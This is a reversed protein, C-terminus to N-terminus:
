RVTTSLETLDITVGTSRSSRSSRGAEEKVMVACPSALRRAAWFLLWSVAEGGPGSETGVAEGSRCLVALHQLTRRASCLEASRRLSAAFRSWHTDQDIALDSQEQPSRAHAALPDNQDNRRCHGRRHM